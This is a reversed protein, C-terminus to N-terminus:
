GNGIRFGVGRVTVIWRRSGLKSRLSSVHTDLTRSARGAPLQGQWVASMLEERPVVVDPQSVLQYLLDFEKRTTDMIRGGLQVERTDVNVRLAGHELVKRRPLVIKATSPTRPCQEPIMVTRRVPGSRVRRMIADIRATLERVDFPRELCDDSGARFMEVRYSESGACTLGIIPTDVVSRIRSCVQPGNSEGTGVDILILDAEDQVALAQDSSEASTTRFGRRTLGQTLEDAKAPHSSVILVRM